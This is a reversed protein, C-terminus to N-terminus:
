TIFVSIFSVLGSDVSISGVSVAGCLGLKLHHNLNEGHLKDWFYSGLLNMSSAVGAMTKAALIDDTANAALNLAIRHTVEVSPISTAETPPLKPQPNPIVTMKQRKPPPEVVKGKGKGEVPKDKPKPSPTPENISIGKPKPTRPTKSRKRILPVEPELDEPDSLINEPIAELPKEAIPIQTKISKSAGPKKRVLDELRPM